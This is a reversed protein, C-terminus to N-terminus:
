AVRLFSGTLSVRCNVLATALQHETYADNEHSPELIATGRLHKLTYM